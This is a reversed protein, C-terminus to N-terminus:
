VAEVSVLVGTLEISRDTHDSGRPVTSGEQPLLSNLVCLDCRWKGHWFWTLCTGHCSDCDGERYCGHATFGLEALKLLISPM